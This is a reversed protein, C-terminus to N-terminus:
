LNFMGLTSCPGAFLALFGSPSDDGNSPTDGQFKILFHRSPDSVVMSLSNWVGRLVHLNRVVHEFTIEQLNKATQAQLNNVMHFCRQGWVTPGNARTNRATRFFRRLAARPLVQFNQFVRPHNLELQYVSFTLPAHLGFLDWKHIPYNQITIPPLIYYWYWTAVKRQLGFKSRSVM